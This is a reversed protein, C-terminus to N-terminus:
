YIINREGCQLTRETRLDIGLKAGNSVLKTQRVRGRTAMKFKESVCLIIKSKSEILVDM